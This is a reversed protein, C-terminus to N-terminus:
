QQERLHSRLEDRDRALETLSADLLRPKSRLRARMVGIAIATFLVFAVTVGISALVRHTDWFAFVVTLAALLLSLFGCVLAVFAIALLRAARQVEEQLETTILELRTQAITLVTHLLNGLSKFLGTAPGSAAPEVYPDRYEVSM